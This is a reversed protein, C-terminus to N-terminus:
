LKIGVVDKKGGRKLVIVNSPMTILYDSIMPFTDMINFNAYFTVSRHNKDEAKIKVEFEDNKVKLEVITPFRFVENNEEYYRCIFHDQSLPCKTVVGAENTCIGNDSYYKCTMKTDM